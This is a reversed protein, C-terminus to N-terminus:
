DRYPNQDDPAPTQSAEHYLGECAPRIHSLYYGELSNVVSVADSYPSVTNARGLNHTVIAQRAKIDDYHHLSTQGLPAVQYIYWDDYYAHSRITIHPLPKTSLFIWGPESQNFRTTQKSPALVTHIPFFEPSAHYFKFGKGQKERLKWEYHAIANIILEVQGEMTQRTSHLTSDYPHSKLVYRIHPNSNFIKLFTEDEPFPYGYLQCIRKKISFAYNELTRPNDAKNHAALQEFFKDQPRSM